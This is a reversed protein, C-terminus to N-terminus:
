PKFDENASELIALDTGRRDVVQVLYNGPTEIASRILDHFELFDPNNTIVAGSTLLLSEKFTAIRMRALTKDTTRWMLLAGEETDSFPAPFTKCDSHPPVKAVLDIGTVAGDIIADLARSVEQSFGVVDTLGDPDFFDPADIWITLPSDQGNADRIHFTAKWIAM